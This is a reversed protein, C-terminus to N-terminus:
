NESVLPTEARGIDELADRVEEVPLGVINSYSGEVKDIFKEAGGQIAYAGAKDDTEGTAVYEAIEDKSLERMTVRSRVARLLCKSTSTDLVAFATVVSHTKASLKALMEEANTRSAPKGFLEGDLEVITDASIIIHPETNGRAKIIKSVKMAKSHALRLSYELPPENERPTEDIDATIVTFDKIIECLL